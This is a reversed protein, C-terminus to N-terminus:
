SKEEVPPDSKAALKAYRVCLYWLGFPFVLVVIELILRPPIDRLKLEGGSWVLATMGLAWWSSFLAVLGLAIALLRTGSKRLKASKSRWALFYAVVLTAIPTLVLVPVWSEDM